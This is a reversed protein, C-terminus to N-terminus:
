KVIVFKGRKSVENSNEVTYLYTGAEYSRLDINQIGKNSNLYGNYVVKGMNDFIKFSYKGTIPKLNYTIAIYEKAPNPFVAVDAEFIGLPAKTKIRRTKTNETLTVYDPHYDLQGNFYLISKAKAGVRSSSNALNTIREDIPVQDTSDRDNMIDIFTLYDNIDDYDNSYKEDGLMSNLIGEAQSYEKMDIYSDVLEYKADINRLNSLLSRYNDLQLGTTDNIKRDILIRTINEMKILETAINNEMNTRFTTTEWSDEIVGKAEETLVSEGDGVNNMFEIYEDRRTADPNSLAVELYVALPLRFSLALEILVEPSLYPSMGLYENRLDWVEGDWSNQLDTLLQDTSGGDLLNNYNYLLNIFQNESLQYKNELTADNFQSYDEICVENNNNVSTINVNSSISLPEKNSGQKFFYLIQSCRENNYIDSETISTNQAFLNEASKSQDASQHMAIGSNNKSPDQEVIIGYKSNIFDNCNYQLGTVDTQTRIRNQGIAEASHYLNIFQNGKIANPAQGSNKTQIGVNLGEEYINDASFVNQEIKYGTCNNTVLGLALLSPYSEGPNCLPNIIFENYIIEGGNVSTLFIGDFNNNFFSNKVSLNKNSLNSARIGYHLNTFQSRTITHDPNLKESVKFGGNESYIGHKIINDNNYLFTNFNCAIFQVGEVGCMTVHYLSEKDNAFMDNDWYFSCSTFRSVNPIIGRVNGNNNSYPMFEVSRINNKFTTGIASVIGGMSNWDDAKWLSIANRANEITGNTIQLTGQYQSLQRQNKQGQVEIGGWYYGCYSTLTSNNILLKAGPEVKIKIDAALYVNANDITLINGSKVTFDRSVKTQTSWTENGNTQTTTIANVDDVNITLYGTSSNGTTKDHLLTSVTARVWGNGVSKTKITVVPSNVSSIIELNDSCEWSVAAGQKLENISYQYTNCISLKREGTVYSDIEDFLWTHLWPNFTVHEMNGDIPGIYSQFPISGETVLNRGYNGFLNECLNTDPWNYALASKTPIFCHNEIGLNTNILSGYTTNEIANKVIKFTYLTGGPAADYSCQGLPATFYKEVEMNFDIGKIYRGYFVSNTQGNETTMHLVSIAESLISLRLAELNPSGTLTSNLSGNAIAVRRLTNPFKLSNLNNYFTHFLSGQEVQYSLMEKAAHSKLQIDYIKKAEELGIKEGAYKLFHQLSLPINAGQHPSDLSVWLRTNHGRYDYNSINDEMYKLAYRTILGGMSPGVVVIQENSNNVRLLENIHEIATVCTYANREIYDAGGDIEVGNAYYIPFNLIIIDYGKAKLLEGLHVDGGLADGNIDYELMDWIGGGAKEYNGNIHSFAKRTDGPDFADVILIPKKLIDGNQGSYIISMEAEGKIGLYEKSAIIPIIEDEFETIEVINIISISTIISGNSLTGKIKITKKGYTTYIINESISFIQSSSYSHFGTGDGYDIQLNSLAVLSSNFYFLSNVNFTISLNTFNTSLPTAMFINKKIFIGLANTDNAYPISDIFYIKGNNFSNTDIISYDSIIIGIPSVSDNSNSNINNRLDDISLGFSQLNPNIISRKLESYSQIFNISNTTDDLQSSKKELNAFPFVRNYLIGSSITDFRIHRYLSDFSETFTQIQASAGICIILFFLTAFLNKKM